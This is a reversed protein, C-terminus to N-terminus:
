GDVPNEKAEKRARFEGLVVNWLRSIWAFFRCICLSSRGGVNMNEPHLTKSM